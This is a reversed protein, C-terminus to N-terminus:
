RPGLSRPNARLTALMAAQPPRVLPVGAALLAQRLPAARVADAWDWRAFGGCHRRLRDERRKEAILDARGSYKAYGDSEGIARSGPWFFDVRDEFGDLHFTRQLEPDPFGLWEIVARSVSEGASEARPDARRWAWRMTARGRRNCQADAIAVLDDIACTGGQRPSVAADAVALGFAPPLARVLDVATECRRTASVGVATTIPRHDRSTHVVVDGFRHSTQGQADFVHLERPEGFVPLGHLAGASELCFVSDPRVMALAHVRGLYRDWPPLSEWRATPAYVRHRIRTLGPDHRPLPGLDTESAVILPVPSPRFSPPM